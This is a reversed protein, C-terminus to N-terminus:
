KKILKIKRLLLAAVQSREAASFLLRIGFILSGVALGLYLISGIGASYVDYIPLVCASLALIVVIFILVPKFSWDLPHARHALWSAITAKALQGFLVGIAVGILGWLPALLYIASLTVVLYAAYAYLSLYSRKSIGIGIETIWGLGQIVLALALPFVVIASMAYRETALLTILPLSIAGLFLALPMMVLIFGKLVLNYTEIADEQKYLSLSFPGWATQFAGVFIAVLMAARAGVAFLGLDNMSLLNVTLWREATPAFAGLSCTIGVPFSYRLMEKLYCFSNPIILWKRIFWIGLLGFFAYNIIGIWLIGAIGIDFLYIGSILLAASFLTSGLSIFLFRGREFTWKLLNQSFNMLILFPAQIVILKFFVSAEPIKTLADAVPSAWSVLVAVVVITIALQLILSQSILQSRKFKEDFEYFFRAVASDQGFIILVGIFTGMVGFLDIVGYDDTSFHRAILPFTIISFSKSLVSAGGYILSDNLLFSLRARHSLDRPSRIKM